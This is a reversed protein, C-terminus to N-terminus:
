NREKPKPLLQALIILQHEADEFILHLNLKGFQGQYDWALDDTSFYTESIIAM